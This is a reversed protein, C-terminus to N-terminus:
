NELNKRAQTYAEKTLKAYHAKLGSMGLFDTNVNVISISPLFALLRAQLYDIDLSEYASWGNLIAYIKLNQLQHTNAFSLAEWVVGEACEGDSIICHVISDANAIAMGVAVSIGMGLSGTSCDIGYEKNRKPHDGLTEFLLQASIGRFNSLIVYLASAAHGNSLIVRDKVGLSSFIQHLTPLVSFASGVHSKQYKYCNELLQIQCQKVDLPTPKFSNM